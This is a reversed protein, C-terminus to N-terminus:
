EGKSSFQEMVKRQAECRMQATPYVIDFPFDYELNWEYADYKPLLRQVHFQMEMQAQMAEASIACNTIYKVEAEILQILCISHERAFEVAGSQFGSTSILVGKQAHVSQMRSYLIEVKDRGVPRKYMKCEGITRYEMNAIKHTILIDVQYEGDTVKLKQNHQVSYNQLKDKQAIAELTKVCFIEFETPSIDAVLERYPNPFSEVM